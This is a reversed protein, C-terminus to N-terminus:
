MGLKEIFFYTFFGTKKTIKASKPLFRQRGGLGSYKMLGHCNIFDTANQTFFGGLDVSKPM